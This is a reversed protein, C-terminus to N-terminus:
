TKFFSFDSLIFSRIRVCKHNHFQSAVRFLIEFNIQCKHHVLSYNMEIQDSCCCLLMKQIKMFIERLSYLEILSIQAFVTTARQAPCFQGTFRTGTLRTFTKRLSKGKSFFIFNKSKPNKKTKSIKKVLNFGQISINCTKHLFSLKEILFIKFM